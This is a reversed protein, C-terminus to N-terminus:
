SLNDQAKKLGEAPTMKGLLIQELQTLVEKRIESTSNEFGEPVSSKTSKGNEKYAAAWPNDQLFAPPVKTDTAVTSTNGIMESIAQQTDKTLFWTLFHKALEKNKSNTNIGFLIGVQSTSKGPFPL